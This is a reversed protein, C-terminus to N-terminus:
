IAIHGESVTVKDVHGTLWAPSAATYEITPGIEVCQKDFVTGVNIGAAAHISEPFRIFELSYNDIM